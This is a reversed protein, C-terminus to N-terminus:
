KRGLKLESVWHEWAASQDAVVSSLEAPTSVRLDFAQGDLLDRVGRREGVKAMQSAIRQVVSHPLGRPGFLAAWPVITLGRLGTEATTPADPALPSRHPLLTALVRLRGEKIAALLTPNLVAVMLRIRGSFFGGFAAADSKYPVHLMDLRESTALQAVLLISTVNGTGYSVKGPNARVYAIM